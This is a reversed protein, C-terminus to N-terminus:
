EQKTGFLPYFEELVLTEHREGNESILFSGGWVTEPFELMQKTILRIAEVPINPLAKSVPLWKLVSGGKPLKITGGAHKAVYYSRFSIQSHYAFKYTAYGRLELNSIKIGRSLALSDM